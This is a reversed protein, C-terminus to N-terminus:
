LAGLPSVGFLWPHIALVVGYLLVASGVRWWGIEALVLHQWGAALRRSDRWVAPQLEVRCATAM